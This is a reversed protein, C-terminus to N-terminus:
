GVDDGVEGCSYTEEIATTIDSGTEDSRAKVAAVRSTMGAGLRAPRVRHVLSM